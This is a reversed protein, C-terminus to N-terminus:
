LQCGLSKAPSPWMRTNDGLQWEGPIGGQGEPPSPPSLRGWPIQPPQHKGSARLECPAAAVEQRDTSWGPQTVYGRQPSQVRLWAEMGGHPAVGLRGSGPTPGPGQCKQLHGSGAKYAVGHQMLVPVM